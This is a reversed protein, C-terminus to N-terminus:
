LQTHEKEYEITEKVKDKMYPVEIIEYGDERLHIIYLKYIISGTKELIYAYTSLQLAYKIYNCDELDETPPLIGKQGKYGKRKIEKNTKWDYLSVVRDTTEEGNKVGNHNIVLDITGALLLEENYIKQEPLPLPEGLKRIINHFAKIGQNIKKKDKISLNM